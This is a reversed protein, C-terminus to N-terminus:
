SYTRLKTVVSHLRCWARVLPFCQVALINFIKSTLSGVCYQEQVYKSCNMRNVSLVLCKLKQMQKFRSVAINKLQFNKSKLKFNILLFM